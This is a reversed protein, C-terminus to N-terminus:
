EHHRFLSRFWRAWVNGSWDTLTSVTAAGLKSLWVLLCCYSLYAQLDPSAKSYRTGSLLRGRTFYIKGMNVWNTRESTSVRAHGGQSPRESRSTPKSDSHSDDDKVKIKELRSVLPGNKAATCTCKLSKSKNWKLQYCIVCSWLVLDPRKPM